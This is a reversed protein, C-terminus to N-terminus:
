ILSFVAHVNPRQKKKNQLFIREGCNNATYCWDKTFLDDATPSCLSTCTCGHPTTTEPDAIEGISRGNLDSFLLEDSGLNSCIKLEMSKKNKNFKLCGKAFAQSLLTTSILFLLRM